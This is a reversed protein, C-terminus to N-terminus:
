TAYGIIYDNKNSFDTKITLVMLTFKSYFLTLWLVDSLKISVKTFHSKM